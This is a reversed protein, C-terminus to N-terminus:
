SKLLREVEDAVTLWSNRAMEQIPLSQLGMSQLAIPKGESKSWTEWEQPYEVAWYMLKRSHISLAISEVALSFTYQDPKSSSQDIEALFGMAKFFGDVGSQAYSEKCFPFDYKKHDPKFRTFQLLFIRPWKVDPDFKEFIPLCTILQRAVINVVEEPKLLKFLRKATEECDIWDYDYAAKRLAIIEEDRRYLAGALGWEQFRNFIDQIEAEEIGLLQSIEESSKGDSSNLLIQATKAVEIL